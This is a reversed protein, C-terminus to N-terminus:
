EVNYNKDDLLTDNHKKVIIKGNRNLGNSQNVKPVTLEKECCQVGYEM